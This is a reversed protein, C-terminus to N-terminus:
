YIVIILRADLFPLKNLNAEIKRSILDGILVAAGFM